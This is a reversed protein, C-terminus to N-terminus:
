SSRYLWLLLFIQRYGAFSCSSELCTASTTDPYLFQRHTQHITMAPRRYTNFRIVTLQRLKSNGPWDEIGAAFKYPLFYQPLRKSFSCSEGMRMTIGVATLYTHGIHAIAPTEELPFNFGIEDSAGNM